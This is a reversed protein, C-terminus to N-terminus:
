QRTRMIINGGGGVNRLENMKDPYDRNCGRDQYGWQSNCDRVRLRLSINAQRLELKFKYVNLKM